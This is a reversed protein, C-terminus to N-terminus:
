VTLSDEIERLLAAINDENKGWSYVQFLTVSCFKMVTQSGNPELEIYLNEGWSRWSLSSTALLVRREANGEVLRFPSAELVEVLKDFALDAEFDLTLTQKYKSTLINLPSTFYGKFRLSKRIVLHVAFFGVVAIMVGVYVPRGTNLLNVSLLPIVVLALLIALWIAFDKSSPSHTIYKM